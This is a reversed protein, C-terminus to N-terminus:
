ILSSITEYMKRAINQLRVDKTQYSMLEEESKPLSEGLKKKLQLWTAIIDSQRYAFLLRNVDDITKGSDRAVRERVPNTIKSADDLEADTFCDM